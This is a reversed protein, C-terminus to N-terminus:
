RRQFRHPCLLLTPKLRPCPADGHKPDSGVRHERVADAQQHKVGRHPFGRFNGKRSRTTTEDPSPALDKHQRLIGSQLPM